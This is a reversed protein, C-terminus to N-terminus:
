PMKMIDKSQLAIEKFLIADLEVMVSNNYINVFKIVGVYGKYDGKIVRIRDNRWFYM